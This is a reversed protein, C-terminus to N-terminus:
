AMSRCTFRTSSAKSCSDVPEPALRSRTAQALRLPSSLIWRAAIRLGHGHQRTVKGATDRFMANTTRGFPGACLAAVAPDGHAVEGTMGALASPDRAVLGSLDILPIDRMREVPHHFASVVM